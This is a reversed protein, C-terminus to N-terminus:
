HLTETETKCKLFDALESECLFISIEGDQVAM